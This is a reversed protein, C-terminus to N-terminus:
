GCWNDDSAEAEAEDEEDLLYRGLWDDVLMGRRFGAAKMEELEYYDGGEQVIRRANLKQAM